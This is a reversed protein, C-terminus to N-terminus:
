VDVFDEMNLVKLLREKDIKTYDFLYENYWTNKGNPWLNIAFKKKNERSVWGKEIFVREPFL